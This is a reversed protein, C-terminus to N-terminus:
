QIKEWDARIPLNLYLSRLSINKTKKVASQLVPYARHDKKFSLIFLFALLAADHNYVCLSPFCSKCPDLKDSCGETEEWVCPSSVWEQTSCNCSKGGEPDGRLPQLLPPFELSCCHLSSLAACHVDGKGPRVKCLSSQSYRLSEGM